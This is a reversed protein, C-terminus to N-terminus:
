RRRRIFAERALAALVPLDDILYRRGLRRPEQVLRHAWELGARRLFPPARKLARASFLAAAGICLGLGTAAGSRRIANALIEQQPSGVALLVLHAPHECVFRVAAVIAGADTIFGMPPNYHALRLRPYRKRLSEFHAADLGIVTVAAEGQALATLVAETLDAGTTVPPPALGLPKAINHIVQSDLLCLDADRYLPLLHPRRRLRAIHDANPTVVYGFPQWPERRLCWAIAEALRLGTFDLGLLRHKVSDM